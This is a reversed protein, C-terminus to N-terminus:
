FDGMDGDDLPIVQEPQAPLQRPAAKPPLQKATEPASDPQRIATQQQGTGGGIYGSLEEVAAHMEASQASLEETASATEEANAANQQIVKEMQVVGNNIQSIGKSQEASAAAIESVLQQVKASEDVVQQVAEGTEKFLGSGENVKAITQEILETTKRSAEASRMSLARVEEAVVAFGSGADGARAAEVAANLSLLNTQFAIEDITKVINQTEASAHAIEESASLSRQMYGNARDISNIVRKTLNDAENAHDANQKTMSSIEELSSSIEEVSAAQESSGTALNQSADSLQVTSNKVYTASDRLRNAMRMVGRAIGAAFIWTFVVVFFLVVAAVLLFIRVMRRVPAQLQATPVAVGFSWGPSGPVPHFFLYEREGDPRVIEAEGTEGSTMRRAAASLGRFGAQDAQRANLKMRIKENPHALVLGNGQMIWGYGASGIKVRQAIESLGKLTVTGGQMGILKKQKNKVAAAVVIIAKGTARSVIADSVVVDKGKNFIQKFYGRDKIQATVGVGTPATGDPYGFYVMEMSKPMSQTQNSLVQFVPKLQKQRYVEHSSFAQLASKIEQLWRGLEAARAAVIQRSLDNNLGNLARQSVLVSVIGFSVCILLGIGGFTWLMKRKVTM